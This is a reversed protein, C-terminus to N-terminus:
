ALGETALTSISVTDIDPVYLRKAAAVTPQRLSQIYAHSPEDLRIHEIGGRVVGGHKGNNRTPKPFSNSTQRNRTSSTRIGSVQLPPWLFNEVNDDPNYNSFSDHHPLSNCDLFDGRHEFLGFDAPRHRLEDTRDADPLQGEEAPLFRM